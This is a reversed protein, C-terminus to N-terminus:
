FLAAIEQRLVPYDKFGVLRKVMRGSADILVVTPVVITRYAMRVDDGRALLIPLDLNEERVLKQLDDRDEDSFAIAVIALQSEPVEDRLRQLEVLNRLSHECTPSWFALALPRGRFQSKQVKNGSLDKLEFEPAMFGVLPRGDQALDSKLSEIEEESPLVLDGSSPCGECGALISLRSRTLGGDTLLESYASALIPGKMESTLQVRTAKRIDRVSFVREGKNLYEDMVFHLVRREEVTLPPLEPVASSSPSAGARATSSSAGPSASYADYPGASAAQLILCRDSRSTCLGPDPRAKGSGGALATGAGGSLLLVLFLALVQTRSGEIVRAPYKM